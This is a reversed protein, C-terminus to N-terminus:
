TEGGHLLHLPFDCRDTVSVGSIPGGAGDFPDTMGAHPTDEM